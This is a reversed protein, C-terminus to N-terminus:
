AIVGTCVKAGAEARGTTVSVDKIQKRKSFVVPTIPDRGSERVAAVDVRIVPQGAELQDGDSALAEFGKGGMEVTELGIHVLLEVGEDSVMGFAHLTRFVKVLRGSVPACVEVTTADAAPIVAFGEGLMGQAFVPDPVDRVAVVEGSFPVSVTLKKKGFGFM